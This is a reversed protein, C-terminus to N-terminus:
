GGAIDGALDVIAAEVEPGGGGSQVAVAFVADDSLVVLENPGVDNPNYAGQGVGDVETVGGRNEEYVTKVGVWGSAPGYHFVEVTPAIGGELTFTCNRAIGPEASAGTAGFAAAVQEPTAL